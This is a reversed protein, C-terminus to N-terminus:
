SDTPAQTLQRGRDVLAADLALDGDAEASINDRDVDLAAARGANAQGVAGPELGVDDHRVGVGIM